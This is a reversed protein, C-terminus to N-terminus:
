ATSTSPRSPRRNSTSSASRAPQEHRRRLAELRGRESRGAPLVAAPQRHRGAKGTGVLTKVTRTTPTASRSRTTTPTPSTSSATATRWASATSSGSRPATATSTTSSSSARAASCITRARSLARATAARWRSRASPRSRRTPSSSTSATPRWAARSPSRPRPSRRRRRHEGARYRGLRRDQGARRRAALDPAPRGDRHLAGEHRARPRRGLPQEARDDQAPGPRAVAPPRHSQQGTGAITTVTKAKLDVARIAHNETDAVYLTDGVLCM